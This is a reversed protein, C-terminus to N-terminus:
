EVVVISADCLGANSKLVMIYSDVWFLTEERKMERQGWRKRWMELGENTMLVGEGQDSDLILSGRMGINLYLILGELIQEMNSLGRNGGGM